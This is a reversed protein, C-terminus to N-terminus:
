FGVEITGLFRGNKGQHDVLVQHGQKDKLYHPETFYTHSHGGLLIDLGTTQAIFDPDMGPDDGWGLHSLCIVLDCHEEGRLRDIVPQAAKVPDTFRMGSYNDRSILGQPQPSVGFIGVRVGARNIIIYPKVLGECPTGTFDYNCCVFPFQAMGILRALNDMGFDFEHNGLACADYRMLNLLKVEVDGHYLNYYVSGQSFDGCDLLLMDDPHERRLEEILTARRVFGGKGAMNKDKDNLSVPEVCSHTDSSHVVFLKGEAWLATLSLFMLVITFAIRKM